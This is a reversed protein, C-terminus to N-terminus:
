EERFLIKRCKDTFCAEFAEEIKLHAENFWDDIQDLPLLEPKELVYKLDLLFSLGEPNDNILSMIRLHLRDRKSNYPFGITSDFTDFYDPIESPIIPGFKIYEYLPGDLQEFVIKNLYQLGIHKFEKPQFFDRFNDFNNLVMPRFKEWTRYPKIHNVSLIDPKLQVLANENENFFQTFGNNKKEQRKPFEGKIREYFEDIISDSWERGPIFEFFCLVEELPPNKYKRSM